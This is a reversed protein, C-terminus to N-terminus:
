GVPNWRGSGALCKQPAHNAAATSSLQPRNANVGPGTNACEFFWASRWSTSGTDTWPQSTRIHAGLCSERIVPCRDFLYGLM